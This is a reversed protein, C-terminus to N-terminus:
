RYMDKGRFTVSSYFSYYYRTSWERSLMFSEGHSLSHTVKQKYSDGLAERDQLSLDLSYPGICALGKYNLPFAAGKMVPVWNPWVSRPEGSQLPWIHFISVRPAPPAPPLLLRPFIFPSPVSFLMLFTKHSPYFSRSTSSAWFRFPYPPNLFYAGQPFTHLCFHTCHAPSHALVAPPASLSGWPFLPSGLPKMSPFTYYRFAAEGGAVGYLCM